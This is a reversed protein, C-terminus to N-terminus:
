GGASRSDRQGRGRDLRVLVLLLDAPLPQQGGRVAAARLHLVLAAAREVELQAAGAVPHADGPDALVPEPDADGAAAVHVGGVDLDLPEVLVAAPDHDVAVAEPQDRGRVARDVQDLDVADGM